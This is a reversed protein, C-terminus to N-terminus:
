NLIIPDGELVNLERGASGLNIALAVYGQSDQLAVGEGEAVEAFTGAVRFFHDAVRFAGGLGAEELHAPRLNLQVNGYTDIWTVACEIRGRAIRPQPFAIGTLREADVAPGLDVLAAGTALRAAAPAFVDRGHFTRSVPEILVERSTIQVASTAGGLATWALSLLGNDPGVLRAGSAAEVAVGRRDSGVGPDVVALFVAESPMYRAARALTAAGQDVNQRDVAHTLDIVRVDPAIRAIVGHCVGVFEDILGYDTMFVIPRVM